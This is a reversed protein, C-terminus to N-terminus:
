TEPCDWIDATPLVLPDSLLCYMKVLNWVVAGAGATIVPRIIRGRTLETINIEKREHADAIIDDLVQAHATGDPIVGAVEAAFTLQAIEIWYNKLASVGWAADLEASQQAGGGVTNQHVAINNAASTDYLATIVVYYNTLAGVDM